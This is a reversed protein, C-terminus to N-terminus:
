RIVYRGKKFGSDWDGRGRGVEHCRQGVHDSTLESPGSYCVSCRSRIGAKYVQRAEEDSIGHGFTDIVSSVITREYHDLVHM